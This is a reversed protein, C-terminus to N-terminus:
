VHIYTYIYMHAAGRKSLCPFVHHQQFPQQQHQFPQQEGVSFPYLPWHRHRHRHRHRHTYTHLRILVFVPFFLRQVWYTSGHISVCLVCMCTSASASSSICVKDTYGWPVKALVRLRSPTGGAVVAKTKGAPSPHTPARPITRAHISVCLLHPALSASIMGM